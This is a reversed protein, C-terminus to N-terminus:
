SKRLTKYRNVNEKKKTKNLKRNVRLYNQFCPLFTFYDGSTLQFLSQRFLKEINYNLTIEGVTQLKGLWDTSKNRYSSM